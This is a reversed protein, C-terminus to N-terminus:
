DNAFHEGYDTKEVQTPIPFVRTTKLVFCYGTLEEKSHAGFHLSPKKSAYILGRFQRKSIPTINFIIFTDMM